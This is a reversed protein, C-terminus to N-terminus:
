TEPEPKRRAQRRARRPVSLLVGVVLLHALTWAAAAGAMADLPDLWGAALRLLAAVLLLVVAAVGAPPLRTPEAERQLTTRIMMVAIIIGMAAIALLHWGAADGWGPLMTVGALIWGFGLLLYGLHLSWLDPLQLVAMTRWRALRALASAGALLAGAAGSLPLMGTVASLLAVAAGIGGVLEIRPQVRQVLLGGQARLAGATAAPIVRGGMALMLSAVLLLGVPMPRPALLGLEAAWFLGEALIFAGILPGFVANHGSKSARLFPLGAIVFLLIPYALSVPLAIVAPAGALMVARGALWALFTAALTVPTLRTMLFGGVVALAYGAIMEHAHIAPSWGMPLIGAYGAVWLPVALAAYLSAAAFFLRHGSIARSPRHM